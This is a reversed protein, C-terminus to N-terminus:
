NGCLGLHRDTRCDELSKMDYAEHCLAGCKEKINQRKNEVKALLNKLTALSEDM